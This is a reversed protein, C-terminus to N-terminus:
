GSVALSVIYEWEVVNPWCTLIVRGAGPWLCFQLFITMSASFLTVEPLFQGVCTNSVLCLQGLKWFIFLSLIATSFRRLEQGIMMWDLLIEQLSKSMMIIFLSVVILWVHWRMERFQDRRASLRAHAHRLRGTM